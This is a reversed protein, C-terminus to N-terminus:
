AVAFSASLPMKIFFFATYSIVLHSSNLRTSKRDSVVGGASATGSFTITSTAYLSNDAPSIVVPSSPSTVTSSSEEQPSAGGGFGPSPQTQTQIQTSSNNPNTEQESNESIDNPIDTEEEPSNELIEEETNNIASEPEPPLNEAEEKVEAFDLSGTTNTTPNDADSLVSM